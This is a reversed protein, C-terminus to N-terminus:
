GDSGEDTTGVAVHDQERQAPAIEQQTRLWTQDEQSILSEIREALLRHSLNARAYPGAKGIFLYKEHKLAEATARYNVWLNQFQNLQLVGELAVILGGMVAAVWPSTKLATLVPIAAAALIEITKISKFYRQCRKSRSGYWRIQDDLRQM